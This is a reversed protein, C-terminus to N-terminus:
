SFFSLFFFFFHNPMSSEGLVTAYKWNVSVNTVERMKNIVVSNRWDVWMNNIVRRINPYLDQNPIPYNGSVLDVVAQKALRDAEKNGHINVHAPM